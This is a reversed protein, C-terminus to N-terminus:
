GDVAEGLRRILEGMDDGTHSAYSALCGRLLGVVADPQGALWAQQGESGLVGWLYVVNSAAWDAALNHEYTM